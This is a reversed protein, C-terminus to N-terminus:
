KSLSLVMINDDSANLYDSSDSKTTRDMAHCKLEIGDLNVPIENRCSYKQPADNRQPAGGNQTSNKNKNSKQEAYHQGAHIEGYAEVPSSVSDSDHDEVSSTPSSLVILAGNDSSM